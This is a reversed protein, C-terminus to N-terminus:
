DAHKRKRGRKSGSEVKKKSSKLKEPSSESDFGLALKSFSPNTIVRNNLYAEVEAMCLEEMELVHKDDYVESDEMFEQAANLTQYLVGERSLLEFLNEGRNRIIRWGAPLKENEEFGEESLKAKMKFIDEERFLDENNVMHIFAMFISDFEEQEPSMVRREKKFSLDVERIKWGVPLAPDDKWGREFGNNLNDVLNLFDSVQDENLEESNAVLKLAADKTLIKAEETLFLVELEEEDKFHEPFKKKDVNLRWGDPLSTDEEWGEKSLQQYMQGLYYNDVGEDVMVQFALVAKQILLGNPSLFFQKNQGYRLKKVAVKWGPPLYKAQHWKYTSRDVNGKRPMRKNSLMSKVDLHEKVRNVDQSPFNNARMYHYVPALSHFEKCDPSIFKYKNTQKSAPSSKKMVEKKMWGPPIIGRDEVWGAAGLGNRLIKVDPDTLSYGQKLLFQITKVRGRIQAGGPTLFYERGFLGFSVKRVKWGEPVTENELWEYNQKALQETFGKAVFVLGDSDEATYKDSSQEMHSLASKLNLILGESSFFLHGKENLKRKIRWNEPLIPHSAWGEKELQSRMFAVQDEPHCNQIMFQLAKLRSQFTAGSPSLIYCRKRPKKNAKVGDFYRIKWGQPITEDNEIWDHKNHAWKARIEERLADLNNIDDESYKDSSQMFAVVAKRSPFMEGEPSLFNYENRGTKCKRYRWEAPLFSSEVWGDYALASIMKKIAVEDYNNKVMYALAKSKSPFSEGNPSLVRAYDGNPGHVIKYRWGDPLYEEGDLWSEDTERKFNAYEGFFSHLNELHLSTYEESSNLLRVAKKIGIFWENKDTLFRLSNNGSASKSVPKAFWGEPLLPHFIWGDAVLGSRLTDVDEQHDGLKSLTRIADIRSVFRRGTIDIFHKIISGFGVKVNKAIWGPPLSKAYEEDDIDTEEKVLLDPKKEEEGLQREEGKDSTLSENLSADHEENVQKDLIDQKSDESEEKVNVVEEEERKKKLASAMMELEELQRPLDPDGSEEFLKQINEIEQDIKGKLQCYQCVGEERQEPLLEGSCKKCMGTRNVM